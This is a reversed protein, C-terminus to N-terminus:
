KGIDEPPNGTQLWRNVQKKTMEQTGKLYVSLRRAAAWRTNRKSALFAVSILLRLIGQWRILGKFPILNPLGIFSLAARPADGILGAIHRSICYEADVLLKQWDSM